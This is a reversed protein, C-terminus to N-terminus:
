KPAPFYCAWNSYPFPFNCYAYRPIAYGSNSAANETQMIKWNNNALPLNSFYKEDYDGNAVAIVDVINKNIKEYSCTPMLWPATAYMHVEIFYYDGDDISHSYLTSPQISFQGQGNEGQCTGNTCSIKEYCKWYNASLKTQNRYNSYRVTLPFFLSPYLFFISVCILLFFFILKFLRFIIYWKPFLKSSSLRYYSVIEGLFAIILMALFLFIILTRPIYSLFLAIIVFIIITLNRFFKQLPNNSTIDLLKAKQEPSLKQQIFYYYSIFVILPIFLWIM